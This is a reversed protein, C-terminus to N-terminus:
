HAELWSKGIHADVELPVALDAAQKMTDRLLVLVQEACEERTEVLLEDHIQLVIKADLGTELLKRHVQVMAIKMIDAATGQIPSNMAVREGFARQMFNSSKLEPIPRRRGYYTTVCGQEKADRIQRDLFEKVKPYTKFYNNIYEKAEARSISLGESLGFVSIGYVVGFNVAKANRRLQPTVEELPVHFVQSATVAHIDVAHKYANILNEDGSLSALVRLEIQSYDADVFVCGESPVFVGRIRSGMETRIPINQLNPETSSIRGTATITQNFTGHIRGDERIYATLGTAYTSNLKSLMRYDLIRKVVPYDPALKDLIEAATSYGSKTKKGYPLHMKEFLIEGLQKPSNINFREGTAEYIEAEAEAIGKKLEEAFEALRAGEVRIGALEMAALAYTLPLETERYLAAMGTEELKKMLVPGSRFAAFGAYEAAKRPDEKVSPIMMDLYDRALDDAHYSDKLPNLLYAAIGLDQINKREEPGIRHLMSKLEVCSVVPVADAIRRVIGTLYEEDVADQDTIEGDEQWGEPLESESESREKPALFLVKGDEMCLSLGQGATFQMGAAPAKFFPELAKEAESKSSITLFEPEGARNAAKASEDFRKLMSRFELRKMEEYAEPTYLNGITMDELSVEVPVDTKITALWKSFEAMDYHERLAKQARPPKVEDIHAYANEISHWTSILATATKEGISPVGPINDSQDGMLAKVDIFESPTVQYAAAVDDPYYDYVTTQGKSTKPIRIRIHSDALQLLDRDGSVISVELEEGQYRKAVTGLIDDAEFGEMSLTPVTMAKLVERILPVQERLEDPMPSRNGKYEPYKEHRFTPAHLDFAVALYDAQEEDLIKFMINLFGYVGNTHVGASNTLPPTGYFARFLISHGDILVMKAM